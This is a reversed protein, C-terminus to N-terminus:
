ILKMQSGSLLSVRIKLPPPQSPCVIFVGWLVHGWREQGGSREVRGQRRGERREATKPGRCGDLAHGHVPRIQRGICKRELLFHTRHVGGFLLAPTM